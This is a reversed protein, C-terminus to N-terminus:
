ASANRLVLLARAPVDVTAVAPLETGAALDGSSDIAVQWLGPPLAFRTVTPEPNFALLLRASGQAASGTASTGAHHEGKLVASDLRSDSNHPQNGRGGPTGGARGGARSTDQTQQAPSCSVLAIGPITLSLAAARGLFTRRDTTERADQPLVPMDEM